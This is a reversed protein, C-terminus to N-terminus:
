VPPRRLHWNTEKEFATGCRLVLLESHARGVLQLGVPLGARSAGCPLCLAPYGNLNFPLVLRNMASLFAWPIGDNHGAAPQPGLYADSPDYEFAEGPLCPCALVDFHSFCEATRAAWDAREQQAQYYAAPTIARGYEIFARFGAGYESAGSPFLASQARAAEAAAITYWIASIEGLGPLFVPVVRAGVGRLVDMARHVAASVDPEVGLTCLNEDFGIRVDTLGPAAVGNDSEDYGALAQLLLAIDGVSRALPGVQDFSRALPLVGQTSIAGFTPKLGAIGNASAPIRISGGSDTGLSAYCLGAAVAVGSGSSSVGPWRRAGWPNRPVPFHRDYGDMAGETTHLKGVLIAGARRLRAVADADDDPVHGSLMRLGGQTRAGATFFLDKVAIPVGHLPGRYDGALIEAEANRAQALASPEMLLAYAHLAPDLARIRALQSQIIEVPSVARKRLLGALEGLSLYHLPEVREGAV